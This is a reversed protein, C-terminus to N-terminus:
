MISNNQKYLLHIDNYLLLFLKKLTYTNNYLTLIGNNLLSLVNYLSYFMVYLFINTSLLIHYSHKNIEQNKYLSM